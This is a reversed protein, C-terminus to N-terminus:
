KLLERYIKLTSDIVDNVSFGSKVYQRGAHGMRQRLEKNEVLKTIADALALHDRVPVLVGNHQDKVIENCGPMDTTVIPRGSAAAEILVKPLGERYSPLCVIHCSAFIEPMNEKQGWWEVTGAEHWEKLQREPITTRNGSDTDGVLVFRAELGRRKLIDAARVFEGVGKDWLMRSALLVIPAGAPEPSVFFEELNVGSGRILTTREPKVLHERVFFEEDHPNQFIARSNCHDLALRYALKIVYRRIRARFGDAIFVYGLGTIAYVASPIHLMRAVMGGYLVPKITVHHVIDPRLRAYLSFLASIARVERILGTGSRNVPIPHFTLNQGEIRSSDKGNATAVHVEYGARDAALALPLRHSLFFGPDNVVFLLKSGVEVTAQDNTRKIPM